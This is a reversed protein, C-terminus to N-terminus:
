GARAARWARWLTALAAPEGGQGTRALHALRARDFATRCRRFLRGTDNAPLRAGLETAWDRLLAAQAPGPEIAQQGHRAVLHLPVHGRDRAALGAPLRMALWHIAISRVVADTEVARTGVPFLSSEIDAVARAPGALAGIAADADDPRSDIGAVQLWSRGLSLWPASRSYLARGLPHRYRGQSWGELEEAWWACKAEAVREDSLEFAAERLEHLLAGWAEFVSRHKGGCFVEAIRMEPERTWAKAVFADVAADRSPRAVYLSPQKPVYAEYRETANMFGERGDNASDVNRAIDEVHGTRTMYVIAGLVEDDPDLVRELERLVRAREAPGFKRDIEALRDEPTLAFEQPFRWGM